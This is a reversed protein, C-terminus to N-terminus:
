AAHRQAGTQADRAHFHFMSAGAATCEVIDAGIEDPGCPAHPSLEKMVWENLAVKNILFRQDSNMVTM